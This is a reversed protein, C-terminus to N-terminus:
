SPESETTPAGDGPTPLKRLLDEDVRYLRVNGTLVTTIDKGWNYITSQSVGYRRRIESATVWEDEHSEVAERSVVDHEILDPDHQRDLRTRAEERVRGVSVWDPAMRCCQCLSLGEAQDSHPSDFIWDVASVRDTTGDCTKGEVDKLARRIIHLAFIASRSDPPVEKSRM